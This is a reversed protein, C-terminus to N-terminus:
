DTYLKIRENGDLPNNRSACVLIRRCRLYAIANIQVATATPVLRTAGDKEPHVSTGVLKWQPSTESLSELGSM